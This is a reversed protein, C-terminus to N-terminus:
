SSSEDNQKAVKHQEETNGRKWYSSIYLHTREIKVTEKLFLRIKKMTTFECAVWAATKKASWNINATENIIAHFLPSADSGPNENIVWHIEIGNPVTLSQEDAQNVIEIFIKGKVQAPLTKLNVKLAPLATMDAALLFYEAELNIFKAPGPGFMTLLDGAKAQLSWPAALGTNTDDGHTHLMFDIDIENVASRQEAITYTRMIPKDAISSDDSPFILKVYAGASDKPFNGDQNVLTVRRMNPTINRTSIVIFAKAVRKNRISKVRNIIGM